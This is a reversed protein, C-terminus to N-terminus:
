PTIEEPEPPVTATPDYTDVLAIVDAKALGALHSAHIGVALAYTTWAALGSGKGTVPPRKADAAQWIDQELLRTALDDRVDVPVNKEVPRRIGDVTVARHPGTYVIRM